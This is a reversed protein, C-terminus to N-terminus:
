LDWTVPHEPRYSCFTGTTVANDLHRGLEPHLATLRKMTSRIRQTVASRAREASGAAKRERGHLGLSATLHDVLADLEARARDARGYDHDSEAEDIDGQLDRIRQEYARRAGADIVEGTSPDEAGAGMLELCHVERGPQALLKALDELGKTRKVHVARGGFRIEYTDGQPSFAARTATAPAVEPQPAGRAVADLERRVVAIAERPNLVRASPPVQVPFLEHGVSLLVSVVPAARATAAVDAWAPNGARHLVVAAPDLLMRLESGVAAVMVPEDVLRQLTRAADALMGRGVQALATSRLGAVIGSPYGARQASALASAIVGPASDPDARLRVYGETTLTWIENVDAGAAESEARLRTLAATAEAGRGTDALLSAHATESEIALGVLGRQRGAAAAQDFLRVAEGTDGRAHALLALVRPLTASAFPSGGAYSLARAALETAGGTDALLYRATALTAAVDAAGPVDPNPWRRLVAETLAAIDDVHAQHVVGWLAAALLFARRPDDDHDLTWRLAAAVNDYLTLMERLQWGSWGGRSAAMLEEVRAVVHDAFADHTDDTSGREELRHRAFARVIGLLRYWTVAGRRDAVLLSVDVLAQLMDDVEAADDDPLTVAQAMVATFPGAFVGLREFGRALEGPLLDHSWRVTDTVSRHRRAGRYGTRRLVDAGEHLRALIEEATMTRLRAAAVELALPVGDLERCLQAVPARQDEALTVGADAARDSLLRVAATEADDTDPVPLPGLVVLSEGPLGLPSRSTALVRPAECSALLAAIAGAAPEVVHECNDVLLLVPQEVPSSVLTEFTAFGLQAAISGSVQDADDVVTLDVTRSGLDFEGALRAAAVQALATKGIGGPGTLTVLRRTALRALLQQLEEERGILDM